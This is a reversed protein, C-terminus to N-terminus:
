MKTKFDLNPTPFGSFRKLICVVLVCIPIWFAFFSKLSTIEKHKLITQKDKSNKKPNKHKPNQQKTNLITPKHKAIKPKAAKHKSDNTQIKRIQTKCCKSCHKPSFWIRTNFCQCPNYFITNHQLIEQKHKRAQTNQFELNGRRIYCTRLLSRFTRLYAGTSTNWVSPHKIM